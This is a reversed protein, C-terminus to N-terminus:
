PKIAGGGTRRTTVVGGSRYPRMVTSARSSDLSTNSWWSQRFRSFALARRANQLIEIVRGELMGTFLREAKSVLRVNVKAHITNVPIEEMM